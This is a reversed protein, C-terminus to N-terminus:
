IELIRLEEMFLKKTAVIKPKFRKIKTMPTLSSILLFIKGNPNLYRQSQNLFKLSIEDGKKGGTTATRSNKPEKKDEPLYPANFTIL